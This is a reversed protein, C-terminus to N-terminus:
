EKVAPHHKCVDDDLKQALGLYDQATQKKNHLSVVLWYANDVSYLVNQRRAEVDNAALDEGLQAMRNAATIAGGMYIPQTLMLSTGFLNHM